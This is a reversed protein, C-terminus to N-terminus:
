RGDARFPRYEKAWKYVTSKDLHLAKAIEDARYGEMTMEYVDGRRPDGDWGTTLKGDHAKRYVAITEADTDFAIAIEPDGWGQDIMEMIANIRTGKQRCYLDFAPKGDLNNPDGLMM